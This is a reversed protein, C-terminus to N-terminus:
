KVQLFNRYFKQVRIKYSASIQSVRGCSSRQWGVGVIQGKKLHTVEAGLETIEGVMEHGCIAPFANGWDGAFDELDISNM